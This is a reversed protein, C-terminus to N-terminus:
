EKDLGTVIKGNGDTVTVPILVLDSHVRITTASPLSGSLVEATRNASGSPSAGQQGFVALGVSVALICALGRIALM